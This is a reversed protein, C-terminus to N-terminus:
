RLRDLAASVSRKVREAAGARAPDSASQAALSVTWKTMRWSRVPNEGPSLLRMSRM